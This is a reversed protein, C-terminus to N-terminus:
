RFDIDKYVVCVSRWLRCVFCGCQISHGWPSDFGQKRRSLGSDQGSSSPALFARPCPSSGQCSSGSDLTRGILRDGFAALYRSFTNGLIYPSDLQFKQTAKPIQRKQLRWTTCVFYTNASNIFGHVICLWSHANKSNKTMDLEM